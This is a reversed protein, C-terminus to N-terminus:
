GWGGEVHNIRCGNESVYYILITLLQSINDSIITRKIDIENKPLMLLIIVATLFKKETRLTM